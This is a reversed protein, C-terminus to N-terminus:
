LEFPMSKFEDSTREDKSREKENIPNDQPLVSPLHVETKDERKREKKLTNQTNERDEMGYETKSQKRWTKNGPMKDAKFELRWAQSRSFSNDIDVKSMRCSEENQILKLATVNKIFTTSSSDPNYIM